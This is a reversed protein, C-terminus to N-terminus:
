NFFFIDSVIEVITNDYSSRCFFRALSIFNSITQYHCLLTGHPTIKRFANSPSSLCKEALDHQCWFLLSGLFSQWKWVRDERSLVCSFPYKKSYTLQCCLTHALTFYLSLWHNNNQWIACSSRVPCRRTKKEKFHFFIKNCIQIELLVM